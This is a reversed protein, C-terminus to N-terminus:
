KKQMIKEFEEQGLTEKEVLVKALDDLKKKNKKLIEAAREYATNVLKYIEGDVKSQMQDSVKAVEMYKNWSNSSVMPGLNIPGLDSMGWEIV